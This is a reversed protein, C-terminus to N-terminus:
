TNRHHAPVWAGEPFHAEEHRKLCGSAIQFAEQFAWYLQLYKKTLVDRTKAWATIQRRREEWWPPKPPPQRKSIPTSIVKKKGLVKTRVRGQRKRASEVIVKVMNTCRRHREKESLREWAPIPALNIQMEDYFDRKLVKKKPKKSRAQNRQAVKYQTSKFWGGSISAGKLLAKACHLGPWDCPHSVLNEKVGQSLIYSLCKEQSENTPLATSVFRENWFPGSLKYKEGLRRSIERKIFGVFGSIDYFNTGSVMIHFHNSMFAFGYLKVAPWNKQARAVVGACLRTVDKKPALLFEGRITKSLVHYVVGPQHFRAHRKQKPKQASTIQINM